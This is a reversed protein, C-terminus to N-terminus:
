PARETESVLFRHNANVKLDGITLSREPETNDGPLCLFATQLNTDISTVEQTEEDGMLELCPTVRIM